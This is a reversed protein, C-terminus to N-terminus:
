RTKLFSYFSLLLKQRDDMKRSSMKKSNVSVVAKERAELTQSVPQYLHTSLYTDRPFIGRLLYRTYVQDYKFLMNNTWADGHSVVAYPEALRGDLADVINRMMNDTYKKFREGYHQGEETM